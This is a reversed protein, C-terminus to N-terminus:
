KKWLKKIREYYINCFLYSVFSTLIFILVISIYYNTTIKMIFTKIITLFLFHSLYIGFSYNGIKVLLNNESLKNKNNCKKYFLILIEMCVFYNMISLQSTALGYKEFVFYLIIREILSLTLTAFILYNIKTNKDNEMNIDKIILGLYYYSIWATFVYQYFPIEIKCVLSIIELLINYLLTILIPYYKKKNNNNRNIFSILYPTILFLQILAYIYYLQPSSLGSLFVISGKIFSVGNNKIFYILFYIINWIILSPILRKAKKKYFDYKNGNYRIFYGAMFCFCAVGFNILNRIFINLIINLNNTTLYLTHILIVCLICIGRILQWKNNKM